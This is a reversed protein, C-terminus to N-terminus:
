REQNTEPSRHQTDLDSHDEESGDEHLTDLDMGLDMKMYPTWIWELTPHGSGDGSGDELDM